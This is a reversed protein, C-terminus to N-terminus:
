RPEGTLLQEPRAARAEELITGDALHVIRDAWAAHRADHTVLVVASGQDAMSRLVSLVRDGTVSDLAGTPEDALVLRRQGVMARAIAVRQRQGGSLDDPFDKGRERMGVAALARRAESRATARSAGDLDLPLAVNEIVTLAPILNFDQFVFGVLERRVRARGRASAGEIPVGAVTVEGADPTVMAGAISLLTSKGSGSTGMVAVMEGAAVDLSVRRLAHVRGDGDGYAKSVDRM